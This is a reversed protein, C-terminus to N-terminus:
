LVATFGWLLVYTLLPALIPFAIAFLLSHIQRRISKNTLTIVWLLPFAYLSLAAIGDDGTYSFARNYRADDVGSVWIMGVYYSSVFAPWYLWSRRPTECDPLEM